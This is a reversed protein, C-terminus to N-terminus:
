QAEARSVSVGKCYLHPTQLSGGRWRAEKGIAALNSLVDYVNGAIMSNKVRGAIKGKEVKYGLLINGSFDGALVNTQGAGLLTEVILGLEIDNVMDDFSTDGEQILLVSPSPGPLSGGSRSASGTTEAGVQAATKLDYLFSKAVGKEILPIRRTSVGEDDWPRSGPRYSTTGDDYMTFREDCIREGLRGILPSAGQAVTKGNFGVLLPQLLIGAVADPTFIVPIKGTPAEVTEEALDLQLQVRSVIEKWNSLPRSSSEGDGVFLMDTGRVRTGGVGLSFVSKKYGGDVGQSNIIRVSVVSQSVGADCLVEPSYSSLSDVMAQGLEVMAEVPTEEVARDYVPVEPYGGASPLEFKAEAGFPAVELARQVLGDVDDTRNTASFGIRGDKIIRLAVSHSEKTQLSKLRNAEFSVPTTKSSVGFVEASDAVQSAAELIREM